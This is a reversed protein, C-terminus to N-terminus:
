VPPGREPQRLYRPPTLYLEAVAPLPRERWAVAPATVAIAALAFTIGNAFLDVACAHPSAAPATDHGAHDADHLHAHVVPNVAAVGLLLVLAVGLAAIFRRFPSPADAHPTLAFM